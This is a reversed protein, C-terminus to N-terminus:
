FKHSLLLSYTFFDDFKRVKLTQAIVDFHEESRYLFSFLGGESTEACWIVGM